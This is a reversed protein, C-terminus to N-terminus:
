LSFMFILNIVIIFLTSYERSIRSNCFVYIFQKISASLILVMVQFDVYLRVAVHIDLSSIICFWWVIISVKPIDAGVGGGGAGGCLFINVKGFQVPNRFRM